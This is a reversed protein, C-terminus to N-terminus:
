VAGGPCSVRENALARDLWLGERTSREQGAGFCARSGDRWATITDADAPTCLTGSLSNHLAAV